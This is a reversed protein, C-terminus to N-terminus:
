EQVAGNRWKALNSNHPLTDTAANLAFKLVESGLGGVATAWIDSAFSHVRMLQGQVPLSEAYERREMADEFMVANKARKALTQRRAGPDEVMVERCLTVPKFQVRVQAEEKQLTRHALRQTVRDRSTLLLGGQSVKLRKYLLSIPPLALGGEEKPLYLRATNAPRAVGSWKKLFRTAVSELASSIWSTSLDMIALDWSIRPCVGAKYLLLKQKRTVAINDVQEMLTMLKTELNQQHESRNTPVSLPGGLFKISKSGIFPIKQGHLILGPDFRKTTSAQIALSFCKPIKVMMGSWQLWSEVLSLLLQCSAAGDAVLCADDAYLVSCFIHITELRTHQNWAM